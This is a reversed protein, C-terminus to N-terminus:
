GWVSGRFLWCSLRLLMLGVVMCLRLICSWVSRWGLHRRLLFHRMFRVLVVLNLNDLVLVVCEVDPCVVDLLWKVKHAWEM